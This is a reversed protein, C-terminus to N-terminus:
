SEPHSREGPTQAFRWALRQYLEGGLRSSVARSVLAVAMLSLVMNHGDVMEMVIIASTIPAQTVAALFAAMCLTIVSVTGVGFFGALNSGVAAGVALSPAFIGGPIGTHYSVLTACFRTIPAYWPLSVQGAVVQSTIGYGSGYSLGHGVLGLLAVVLGCAGAFWVPHAERWRWLRHEPYEQPSLILRSFIGGFLGCVAGCVLIPGIISLDVHDIHIRGFYNYNGLLAISLLGSLIISSVLIGSTRTELRRGLEEVAFVIGALPTNFAAAVGAAGGALILDKPRIARSLPLFRHSLYLVSSAVQVSPGERGASFGGVLAFAGVLLKGVAIRLSVLHSVDKGQASLRTAAIVQPIGSGQIGPFWNRTLWVSLMGVAPALLLPAWPARHEIAFFLSLAANALMAFGAVLLGTLASFFWLTLRIRWRLRRWPGRGLRM